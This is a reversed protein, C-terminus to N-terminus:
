SAREQRLELDPNQFQTTPGAGAGRGQLSRNDSLKQHRSLDRSREDCSLFRIGKYVRCGGEMQVLIGLRVAQSRGLSQIVTNSAVLDLLIEVM